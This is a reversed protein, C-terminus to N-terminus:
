IFVVGKKVWYLMKLLTCKTLVLGEVQSARQGMKREKKGRTVGDQHLDVIFISMGRHGAEKDTKALVLGIDAIPANHIWLKQDNLVWGDHTKSAHSAIASVDSGAQAETICYAM